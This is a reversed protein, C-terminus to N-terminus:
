NEIRLARNETSIYEKIRVPNYVQTTCAKLSNCHATPVSFVFDSHAWKYTILIKLCFIFCASGKLFHMIDKPKLGLFSQIEIKSKFSFGDTKYIILILVWIQLSADLSNPFVGSIANFVIWDIFLDCFLRQCRFFTLM